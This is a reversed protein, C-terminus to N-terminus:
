VACLLMGEAAIPQCIHDDQPHKAQSIVADNVVTIYRSKGLRKCGACRFLKDKYATFELVYGPKRVCQYIYM